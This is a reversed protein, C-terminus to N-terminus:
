LDAIRVLGAGAVQWPQRPYPRAVKSSIKFGSADYFTTIGWTISDGFALVSFYGTPGSLLRTAHGFV